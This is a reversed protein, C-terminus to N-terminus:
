FRFGIRLNAAFTPRFYFGQRDMAYDLNPHRPRTDRDNPNIRDIHRVQRHRIGIGVSFDFFFRKYQTQLGYKLSYNFVQKKIVISDVYDPKFHSTDEVNSAFDFGQVSNYKIRRYDFEFAVYPRNRKPPKLFYKEELSFTFGKNRPKIDDALGLISNPLIYGGRVETSFRIGTKREYALEFAPFYFNLLKLPTFKIVNMYNYYDEYESMYYPRHRFKSSDKPFEFDSFPSSSAHSANENLHISQSPIAYGHLAIFVFIINILALKKM